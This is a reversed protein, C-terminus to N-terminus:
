QDVKDLLLKLIQEDSFRSTDRVPVLPVEIGDMRIATGGTELGSVATGLVVASAETTPTIFPDMCIIPVDKLHSTLHGPLSSLPDAGAVLVCDPAHNRLQELISFEPGHSTGQAFSVKNVYGTQQFMLHNFGRMNFHGIMPIVNIRTWNSLEDIMENFLSFDSDLSYTLGLGVFIVCFHSKSMLDVVIKADESESQGRITALIESILKGDEGPLIKLYYPYCLFSMETDRVDISSLTVDPTWGAEQYREHPYYSFRSLHRPHSHYPNAGWYLILDTDKVESLSCSPLTGSLIHRNLEGQCFSSCDDIVAKLTRALEIASEQAELTSNDFGFILPHNSQRLLKAAKEIAEEVTVERKGIQCPARRADVYSTHFLCAGRLCANRTRIINDEGPEIEIDDCLCSCGTCVSTLSDM